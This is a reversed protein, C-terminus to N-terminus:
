RLSQGTACTSYNEFILASFIKIADNSFYGNDSSYFAKLLRRKYWNVYNFNDNEAAFARIMEDYSLLVKNVSALKRIAASRIIGELKESVRDFREVRQQKITSPLVRLCADIVSEAGIEIVKDFDSPEIHLFSPIYGWGEMSGILSLGLKVSGLRIGTLIMENKWYSDDAIIKASNASREILSKMASQYQVKNILEKCVLFQWYFEIKEFDEAVEELRDYDVGLTRLCPVIGEKIYASIGELELLDYLRPGADSIAYQNVLSIQHSMIDDPLQEELNSMVRCMFRHEGVRDFILETMSHDEQDSISTYDSPIYLLDLLLGESPIVMGRSFFYLTQDVPSDHYHRILGNPLIDRSVNVMPIIEKEFYALAQGQLHDPLDRGEKLLRFTHHFVFDGWPKNRIFAKFDKFHGDFDNEEIIDCILNSEVARYENIDSSYRLSFVDFSGEKKTRAAVISFIKKAKALILKDDSSGLIKFDMGKRQEDVAIYDNDLYNFYTPFRREFEAKLVMTAPHQNMEFLNLLRRLDGFTIKEDAFMAVLVPVDHLDFLQTLFNSREIYHDIAILEFFAKSATKTQEFFIEPNAWAKQQRKTIRVASVLAIMEEYLTTLGGNYFNAALSYIDNMLTPAAFTGTELLRGIRDQHSTFYNLLISIKLKDLNASLYGLYLFTLNFGSSRGQALLQSDSHLVYEFQDDFKGDKIYKVTTRRLDRDSSCHLNKILNLIGGEFFEFFNLTFIVNEYFVPPCGPLQLMEYLFSKLDAKQSLSINEKKYSRLLSMFNYFENSCAAKRAEILLYRFAKKSYGVFSTLDEPQFSGRLWDIKESIGKRIYSAFIELRMDKSIKDKEFGFLIEPSEKLMAELLAQFNPDEVPFLTFIYNATNILKPRIIRYPEEYFLIDKLKDWKLKVLNFACLYEQFNNHEFSVWNMYDAKYIRFLSSKKIMNLPIETYASLDSAPLANKGGLTLYVALKYAFSRLEATDIDGYKKDDLSLRLDLFQGVLTSRSDPLEIDNHGIFDLLNSLYFPSHLVENVWSHKKIYDEFKSREYADTRSNIYNNIDDQDFEQLICTSLRLEKTVGKGYEKSFVNSRVSAIINIYPNALVFLNFEEIFRGMREGPVDDLGDFLLMIANPAYRHYDPLFKCIYSDFNERFNNMSILVPHIGEELSSFREAIALIEQSKGMAAEGKILLRIPSNTEIISDLYDSVNCFTMEPQDGSGNVQADLFIRRPLYYPSKQYNNKPLDRVSLPVQLREDLVNFIRLKQELSLFKIENLLTKLDYCKCVTGNVLTEEELIEASLLEPTLFVIILEKVDDKKLNKLFKEITSRKKGKVSTSQTTVQVVQNGTESKLDIAPFNSKGANTNRFVTEYIIGSLDEVKNEAFVAEDTLGQHNLQMVYYSYSTLLFTIKKFATADDMLNM